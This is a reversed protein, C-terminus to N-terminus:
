DFGEPQLIGKSCLAMPSCEIAVSELTQFWDQWVFSSFGARFLSAACMVEVSSLM